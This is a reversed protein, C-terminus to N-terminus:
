EPVAAIDKAPNGGVIRNAPVDKVVVSGFAVVSNEGVRVGKLIAAAASIWVNRGIEIPEVGIQIGSGVRKKSVPHFDTDMIRADALICEDGIRVSQACGFRTGNLFCRNGIEIVAESAHTFPTCVMGVTVDDGIIVTGPGSCLLTGQLSFRKGIRIRPGGVHSKLKWILRYFLGKIWGKRWSIYLGPPLDVPYQPAPLVSLCGILIKKILKKV